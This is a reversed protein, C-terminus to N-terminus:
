NEQREDACIKALQGAMVGDTFTDKGGEMSRAALGKCGRV